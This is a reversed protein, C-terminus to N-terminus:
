DYPYGEIVSELSSEADQEDSDEEDAEEEEV